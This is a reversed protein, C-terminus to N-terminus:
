EMGMCSFRTGRLTQHWCLNLGDIFHNWEIEWTGVLGIDDASLWYNQLPVSSALNRIHGLYNFGMNNLYDCLPESLRYFHEGGIFSDVGLVVQLGNGVKWTLWSVM